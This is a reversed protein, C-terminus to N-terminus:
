RVKDHKKRACDVCRTTEPLIALREPDIPKGCSECIAYSGHQLKQLATELSKLRYETEKKLEFNLEWEQVTPDGDGLSWAPKNELKAYLRQLEAKVIAIEEEIRRQEPQHTKNAM